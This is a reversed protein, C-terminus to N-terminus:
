IHVISHHAISHHVISHHAISHHAISHHALRSQVLLVLIYMCTEGLMTLLDVIIISHTHGSVEASKLRLHAVLSDLEQSLTLYVVVLLIIFTLSVCCVLGCLVCM